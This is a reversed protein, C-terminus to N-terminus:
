KRGSQAQSLFYLAAVPSGLGFKTAFQRTDFKKRTSPAEVALRGKQKFLAFVYRHIGIPPTPGNYPTIENGSLPGSTSGPINTVLWHLWEKAVPNSPSPADPDVMILTYLDEENKGAIEILPPSAADSPKLEDGNQVAADSYKVKIDFSSSFADLVDPIVRAQLLAGSYENAMSSSKDSQSPARGFPLFCSLFFFSVLVVVFIGVHHAYKEM